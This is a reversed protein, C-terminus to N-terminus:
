IGNMERIEIPGDYIAGSYGDISIIDGANMTRGKLSMRGEREICVMDACGVVCTKGLRGAVISAHSTAGGRATLLGDTASVERIDDPVTDRRVLILSTQPELSRFREIDAMSFVIRGSLAGGSVGIGHGLLRMASEPTLAFAKIGQKDSTEMDRSQLIYTDDVTPAEFTFEIDQPNWQRDYILKHAVDVLRKYVVPYRRELSMEVPREETIAQLASIPWTQVLGAVVDDGQVSIAYDGCPRLLYQSVRPSHTFFVGSGSNAGINGYVM